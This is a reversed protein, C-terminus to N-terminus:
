DGEKPKGILTIKEGDIRLIPDGAADRSIVVEADTAGSLAPYRSRLFQFDWNELASQFLDIRDELRSRDNGAKFYDSVARNHRRKIETEICHRSLDLRVLVDVAQM